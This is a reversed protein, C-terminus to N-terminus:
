LRAGDVERVPLHHWEGTEFMRMNVGMREPSATLPTWHTFCGCRRCIWGTITRKSQVYPSIADAQAAITVEGPPWYGGRWGTKRCLTCNCRLVEAPPAAVTIQVAGCHCRGKMAGAM